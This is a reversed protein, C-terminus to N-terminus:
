LHRDILKDVRRGSVDSAVSLGLGLAGGGLGLLLPDNSAATEFALVTRKWGISEAGKLVREWDAEATNTSCSQWMVFKLNDSVRSTDIDRPSLWYSKGQHDVVASGDSGHGHFIVAASRPDYFAELMEDKTAQHDVIVTYGKKRAQKIEEDWREEPNIADVARNNVISMFSDDPYETLNRMFYVVKGNDPGIPPLAKREALIQYSDDGVLDLVSVNPIGRKLTANEGLELDDFHAGDDIGYAHYRGDMEQTLVAQQGHAAKAAAERSAFGQGIEQKVTITATGFTSKWSAVAQGLRLEGM